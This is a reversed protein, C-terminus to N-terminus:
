GRIIIEVDDTTVGFRLALGAKAENISLGSPSAMAASVTEADDGSPHRHLSRFVLTSLDLGRRAVEEVSFYRTPVRSGDWFDPVAIDAVESLLVRYRQRGNHIRVKELGAVRGVLFAAGHPVPSKNGFENVKEPDTNRTCIVYECDRMSRVSLAWSSTGGENEIRKASKATLVVLATAM